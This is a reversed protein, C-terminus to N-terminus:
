FLYLSVYPAVVQLVERTHTCVVSGTQIYTQQKVSLAGGQGTRREDKAACHIGAGFCYMTSRHRCREFDAIYLAMAGDSGPGCRSRGHTSSLLFACLLLCCSHNLLPFRVARASDLPLAFPDVAVPGDAAVAATATTPAAGAAVCRCRFAQRCCRCRLRTAKTGIGACGDAYPM